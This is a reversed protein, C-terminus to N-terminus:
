KDLYDLVLVGDIELIPRKLMSPAKVLIEIATEPKELAHKDIDSLARYTTGKKNLVAELGVAVIWKELKAASIGEKKYNIFEFAAGSAKLKDFARKMKDCNPIGYIEIMAENKECNVGL